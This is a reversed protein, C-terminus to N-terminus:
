NLKYLLSTFCSRGAKKSIDAKPSHFSSHAKKKLVVIDKKSLDELCKCDSLSRFTKSKEKYYKSLGRKIHLQVLLESFDNLSESSSSSLSTNPSFTTENSEKFELPANYDNGEEINLCGYATFSVNNSSNRIIKNTDM